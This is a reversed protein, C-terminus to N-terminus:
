KGPVLGVEMICLLVHFKWLILDFHHPKWWSFSGSFLGCKKIATMLTWLLTSWSGNRNERWSEYAESPGHFNISFFFLVEMSTTKGGCIPLNNVKRPLWITPPPLPPVGVLQLRWPWTQWFSGNVKVLAWQSGNSSGPEMFDVVEM